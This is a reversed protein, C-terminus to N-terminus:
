AELLALLNSATLDLGEALEEATTDSWRLDGDLSSVSVVEFEHRLATLTHQVLTLEGLEGDLATLVDGVVDALPVGDAEAHQSVVALTYSEGPEDDRWVLLRCAGGPYEWAPDDLILQTTM